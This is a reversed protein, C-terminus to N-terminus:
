RRHRRTRRRGPTPHDLRRRAVVSGIPDPASPQEARSSLRAMLDAEVDLVRHSTLSRVHEPVDDRALLPVCRAVTRETLDEVLEHRVPAEAVIDVAAVIREVEGRIDAANWSSRRAGLRSLVLDVVADRRVRGIAVTRHEV